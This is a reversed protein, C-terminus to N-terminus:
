AVSNTPTVTVGRAPTMPKSKMLVTEPTSMEGLCFVLAEYYADFADVTLSGAYGKAIVKQPDQDAAVVPLSFLLLYIVLHYFHQRL